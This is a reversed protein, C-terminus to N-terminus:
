SKYTILIREKAFRFLMKLQELGWIKTKRVKVNTFIQWFRKNFDSSDFKGLAAGVGSGEHLVGYNIFIGGFINGEGRKM